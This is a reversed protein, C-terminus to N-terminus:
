ENSIVIQSITTKMNVIAKVIRFGLKFSDKNM